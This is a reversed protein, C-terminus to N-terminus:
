QQPKGRQKDNRSYIKTNKILENELYKIEGGKAYDEAKYIIQSITADTLDSDERKWIYTPQYVAGGKYAYLYRVEVLDGVNPIDKNPPITVKGM